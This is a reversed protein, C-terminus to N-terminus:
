AYVSPVGLLGRTENIDHAMDWWWDSNDHGAWSELLATTLAFRYANV